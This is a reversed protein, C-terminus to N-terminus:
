SGSKRARALYPRAADICRPWRTKLAREILWRAPLVRDILKPGGNREILDIAVIYLRDIFLPIDRHRDPCSSALAKAEAPAEAASSGFTFGADDMAEAVVPTCSAWLAAQSANVAQAENFGGVMKEKARREWCGEYFQSGTVYFLGYYAGVGAGICGVLLLLAFLERVSNEGDEASGVICL